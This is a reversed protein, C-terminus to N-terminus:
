KRKKSENYYQVYSNYLKRIKIEYQFEYKSNIHRGLTLLSQFTVALAFNITLNGNIVGGPTWHVIKSSESYFADYLKKLYKDQDDFKKDTQTVIESLNNRKYWKQMFKIFDHKNKAEVVIEKGIKGSIQTLYNDAENKGKSKLVKQYDEYIAYLCWNKVASLDTRSFEFYCLGEFLTRAIIVAEHLFNNKVLLVISKGFFLCRNFIQYNFFNTNESDISSFKSIDKNIKECLIIMRKVFNTLKITTKEM